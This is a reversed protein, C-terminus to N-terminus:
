AQVVSLLVTLTIVSMLTSVLVTTTVFSPMLNYELAIISVLVAAPMAAQLIGSASELGELGFLPMLLFAILPGGLLRLGTAVWVNFDIEIQRVESLQVGLTVLMVPVMAQALLGTMRQAFLPVPVDLVQFLLAPVLAVLAPTKFVELTASLGGSRTWNAVGVCIIFSSMMIALFFVTAPLRSEPGFRFEILSLGFNGVNGFVAIMIFAATQEPSRRLVKGGLWGLLAVGRQLGITAGVMRLMLSLDVQATGIINFAFAPVFVFYSIRSLTRAELQLRPGIFYGILVLLFVPTVVDLFVGFLAPIEQGLSLSGGLVGAFFGLLVGSFIIISHM